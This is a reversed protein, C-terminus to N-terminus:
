IKTSDDIILTKVISCSVSLNIYTTPWGYLTGPNMPGAILPGGAVGIKQGAYIGFWYNFDFKQVTM